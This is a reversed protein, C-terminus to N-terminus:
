PNRYCYDAFQGLDAALEEPCELMSMHGCGHYLHVFNVASSHCLGLGTRFSIVNDEAGMIWQVPFGARSVVEVSNEREMMARYFNVLADASLESSKAAKERMLEPHEDRFKPAFLNGTMQRIFAEKGGNLILDIAKQRTKKKEEDDALPTSHVLSLGAVYEPFNRAFALAVYGGMSHGAIVIKKIGEADVMNKIDTAMQVLSVSGSLASGGAGPLDPSFVKYKDSLVDSIGAWIGGDDPFGHVLVVAQGAGCTTYHLRKSDM